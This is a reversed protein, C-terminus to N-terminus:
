NLGAFKIILTTTTTTTTTMTTITTQARINGETNHV